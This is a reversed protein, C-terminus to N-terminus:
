ASALRLQLEALQKEVNISLRGAEAWENTAGAVEIKRLTIELEKEAIFSARGYLLHANHCTQAADHRLVASNLRELESRFEALYLAIEKALTSGKRASNLRLSALPDAGTGPSVPHPQRTPQPTSLLLRLREATVPKALFANMGAAICEARKEPTNFATTAIILAQSSFNSPMRISRSIEPGSMGPMNYDLFIVDFLQTQTLTLAAPGNTSSQVSFGMAELLSSMAICNYEEDDVVLASKGHSLGVPKTTHTSRTPNTVPAFPGSLYFISGKGLESDLWIRGSMNEALSKSLALGLGTGRVRSKQAAAGREFRHFLKNQDESSIGPGDDAVAFIVMRHEANSPNRWVTIRVLGRGSYKLANSVFNLLIQRIRREDGILQTPVSPAICIEVPIGCKESEIATIATISNLLGRLDFSNVELEIAGSQMRSFDLIDELLGSLHSACQRLLDLKRQSDADLDASKISEAIGIVGNMPNRIEHSIGALFDDKAASARLLQETKTEVLRELAQNRARNSSERIRFFIFVSLGFIVVYSLVAGNSRYWPPLIQFALSAPDSTLGASNIARVEFRYAGASLNSFEFSRRPSPTSWEDDGRGMRSQLLWNKGRPNDGTFVQLNLHHGVLPFALDKPGRPQSSRSPDFLIRPVDPRDMTTIADYDLRLLGESGGIWLVPGQAETFIKLIRLFGISALGPIDLEQWQAQGKQTIALIGVGQASSDTLNTHKLALIYGQNNPMPQMAIFDLPPLGELPRPESADGTSLLVRDNNFILIHQNDGSVSVRGQMPKGTVPDDMPQLVATEPNYVYGGKSPTGIWLRETSDEYLSTCADPLELIHTHIFTGDPKTELRDLGPFVSLYYQGTKRQSPQVFMITKNPLKLIPRTNKGDFYDVGGHRPLILGGKFSLLDNYRVTMQPLQEFHGGRSPSTVLQYVGERTLTFLRSNDTELDVVVQGMLGNSPGYLTTHEDIKIHFIGDPTACWAYGDAHPTISFVARSPLGNTTDLVRLLEGSRAVLAIGKNVTGIALNGNPLVAVCSPRSDILFKNLEESSTNNPPVGSRYIGKASILSLGDADKILGLIESDPLREAPIELHPGSEDLRYLGTELHHFWHEDNLKLSYLRSNTAFNWIRFSDGDWRLVKNTCIFYAGQEFPACSWVFGINSEIEPLNSALSHYKFIGLSEEDFYGIENSAGAWLRQNNGFALAKLSYSNPLPFSLWSLGNFVHLQDGGVFLRGLKDQLTTWKYGDMGM